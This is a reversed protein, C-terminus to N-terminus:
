LLESTSFFFFDFVLKGYLMFGDPMSFMTMKRTLFTESLLEEM